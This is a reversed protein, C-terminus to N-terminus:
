DDTCRQINFIHYRGQETDASLIPQYVLPSQLDRKLRDGRSVVAVQAKSIKMQDFITVDDVTPQYGGQEELLWYGQMQVYRGTGEAMYWVVDSLADDVIEDMMPQMDSWISMREKSLFFAV